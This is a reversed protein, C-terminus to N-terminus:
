QSVNKIRKYKNVAVIFGIVTLIVGIWVLIIFPKVTVDAILMEQGFSLEVTSQELNEAPQFKTFGIAFDKTPVLKWVPSFSNMKMNLVSYVTDYYIKGDINYRLALGFMFNNQTSGLHMSSMDYSLFYISDGKSWPAEVTDGKKMTVPTFFDNFILSKPAIYVDKSLFTKIDPEFYPQEFNNFSSWYVIPRVISNSNTSSMRVYFRYKERDPKEQEIQEKRLLEFVYGFASSKKGETLHITQTREFGGSLMAGVILFVIGLHSVFAGIRFNKKALKKVLKRLNVLLTFFSAFFLITYAISYNSLFLFLISVVVSIILDLSASKIMLKLDTGKWNFYLSIGNFLLILIALPLMWQNYFSPELAVKKAGIFNQIIPLSTGVLIVVSSVILIVIGLLTFFQRSAIKINQKEGEFSKFRLIFVVIPFLIFVGLFILLLVNVVKGPDVFSHVSTDSLVGSRTLYTAYLVGLFALWAFIFNTRIFGGKTKHLLLTHVLVVVFIWPVLSSNEVPDWGWFGGWGLTEYAWFGGLMIGLGLVGAGILAWFTIARSYGEFNKQFIGALSLVFPIALFSYGLFLIPPHIAIWYNELIPNLGRGDQPVFDKPINGDPFSEWLDAFPTKFILILTLFFVSFAFFSLSLTSLNNQKIYFYLLVGVLSMWTAWLLFSGEQGAYFSSLLLFFPLNRSSYSWVYTLTFNHSLINFLLYLSALLISVVGGWFTINAYKRLSEKNSKELFLYFLFSLLWFLSALYIIIKGFM